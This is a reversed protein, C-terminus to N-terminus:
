IPRLARRTRGHWKRFPAAREGKGAAPQDGSEELGDASVADSFRVHPKAVDMWRMPSPYSPNGGDPANDELPSPDGPM